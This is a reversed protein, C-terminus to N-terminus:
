ARPAFAAETRAAKATSFEVAGGPFDLPGLLGEPLETAKRTAGVWARGNMAFSPMFVFRSLSV